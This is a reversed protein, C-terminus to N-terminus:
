VGQLWADSDVRHSPPDAPAPSFKHYVILGIALTLLSSLESFIRLEPLLGVFFMGVAWLPIVIKCSWYIGPNQIWRRQLWVVPLLFGFVSLFVPWQQPRVLEHLNLLIRGIVRPNTVITPYDYVNGAFRHALWIKLGVWIAAQVAGHAALRLAAKRTVGGEGARLEQWKWIVFLVTLFCATERNLVAIPYLIYYLWNKGSVVLYLGLCFFMLSPTDYPFSYGLGWGPALNAYTMYILLLSMWRSFIRDGTLRTLTGATALVAGFLTVMSVGIQVLKQPKQWEAPVHMHQMHQALTLVAHKTALLQFVYMMLIRYQYPTRETGLMYAKLDLFDLELNYALAFHVCIGLTFVVWGITRWRSKPEGFWVPSRGTSITEQEGAAVL